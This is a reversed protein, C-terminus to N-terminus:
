RSGHAWAPSSSRWCRLIWLREKTNPDHRRVCAAMFSTMDSCRSVSGVTRPMLMPSSREALPVRQGVYLNELVGVLVRVRFEENSALFSTRKVM